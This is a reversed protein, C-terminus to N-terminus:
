LSLGSMEESILLEPPFTLRWQLEPKKRATTFGAKELMGGPKELLIRSNVMEIGLGGAKVLSEEM